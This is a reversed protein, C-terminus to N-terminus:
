DGNLFPLPVIAAAEKITSPTARHAQFRTASILRPIAPVDKVEITISLRIRTHVSLIQFAKGGFGTRMEHRILLGPFGKFRSSEPFQGKIAHDSLM